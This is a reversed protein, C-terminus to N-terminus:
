NVTDPCNVDVAARPKCVMVRGVSSIKVRRTQEHLESGTLDNRSINLTNAGFGGNKLKAYGSADFMVYSAGGSPITVRLYAPMAEQEFVVSDTAADFTQTTNTAGFSFVKWGANWSGGADTPMVMSNTGKKMAESRAANLSAMLSNSASTLEANKRFSDFGPIALMMLIVGITVTVMLEILTFGRMRRQRTIPCRMALVNKQQDVM